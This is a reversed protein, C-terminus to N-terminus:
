FRVSVAVGKRQKALQPMITIASTKSVAPTDGLYIDRVARFRYSATAGSLVANIGGVLAGLIAASEFASRADGGLAGGMLGGPIGGVVAGIGFGRLADHGPSRRLRITKVSAGDVTSGDLALSSASLETITGEINYGTQDTVTVRDGIAARIPIGLFSQKALTRDIKFGAHTELADLMPPVDRASFRVTEFAARGAGDTYHITLYDKTDKLPWGWKSPEVANEYHMATIRDFPVAFALQGGVEFRLEKDKPDSVFLGKAEEVRGGGKPTVRRADAFRPGTNLVTLGNGEQAITQGISNAQAWVPVTSALLVIILTRSLPPAMM